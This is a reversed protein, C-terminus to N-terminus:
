RRGPDTGPGAAIQEAYSRLRELMTRPSLTPLHVDFWEQYGVVPTQGRVDISFDNDDYVSRLFGLARWAGELTTVDRQRDKWALKSMMDSYAEADSAIVFFVAAALHMDRYNPNVAHRPELFEALAAFADEADALGTRRSLTDNDSLCADRLAALVERGLELLEADEM